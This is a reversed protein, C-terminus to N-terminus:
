FIKMELFEKARGSFYWRKHVKGDTIWIFELTLYNTPFEKEKLLRVYHALSFSQSKTNKVESFGLEDKNWFMLDGFPLKEGFRTEPPNCTQYGLEHYFDSAVREGQSGKSRTSM